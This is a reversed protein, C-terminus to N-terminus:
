QASGGVNFSEMLQEASLALTRRDIKNSQRPANAKKFAGRAKKPGPKYEQFGDAQNNNSYVIKIPEEGSCYTTMNSLAKDKMMLAALKEAPVRGNKQLRGRSNVRETDIM